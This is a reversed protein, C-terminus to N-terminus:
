PNNKYFGEFDCTLHGNSTTPYYVICDVTSGKYPITITKFDSPNLQSASEESSSGCGSVVASFIAIGAVAALTDIWHKRFFNKM